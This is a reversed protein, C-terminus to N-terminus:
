RSPESPTQASRALLTSAAEYLSEFRCPKALFLCLRDDLLGQLESPECYGSSLVVPVNRRRSRIRAFAERGDMRPMTLDLLVIKPAVALADFREIAEVGDGAEIVDFGLHRMMGALVARVEVEDDVVLAVGSFKEAPPPPSSRKRRPVVTSIPFHLVFTTGLGISSEVRLGARHARLIGQIASLGLGRGTRKTTFFPDFIRVLTQEDMGEGTDTVTLEVYRGAPLSRGPEISALQEAFVDLARTRVHIRGNRDGIAESANTVLNMVVQQLQARDAEIAPLDPALDLELKVHKSIGVALLQLMERVLDNIVFHEVAIRGKGAYALMQRTLDAARHVTQEVNALYPEIISGAGSKLRALAVNGLIAGLLNNFDHAIGGALLGLSELKQTERLAAEARNRETVDEISGRILRRDSAPLRVLQVECELVRADYTSMQWEFRPAEGGLAAQVMVELSESSMRGDPQFQPGIALPTARLLTERSAGFLVEARHNVDVFIHTDADFVVIADPAHDFLKRYRAESESLHAQAAILSAERRENRIAVSAVSTVDHVLDLMQADVDAEDNRFVFFLGLLSHDAGLIPASAAARVDSPLLRTVSAPFVDHVSADPTTLSARLRTVDELPMASEVVAPSLSPAAGIRAVDNEILVIMAKTGVVHVEVLACLTELVSRLDDGAALQELVLQQSERIVGSWRERDSLRVSEDQVRSAYCAFARPRVARQVSASLQPRM